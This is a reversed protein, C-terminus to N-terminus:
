LEGAAPVLVTARYYFCFWFMNVKVVRKALESSSLNFVNEKNKGSCLRNM